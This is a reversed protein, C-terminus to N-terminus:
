LEALKTADVGVGPLAHKVTVDEVGDGRVADRDVMARFLSGNSGRGCEVYLLEITPLPDLLVAYRPAHSHTSLFLVM